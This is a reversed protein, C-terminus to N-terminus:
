PDQQYQLVKTFMPIASIAIKCIYSCRCNLDYFWTCKQLSQRAHQFKQLDHGGKALRHKIENKKACKSGKKGVRTNLKMKRQVHRGREVLRQAWNWEEKCMKVVKKLVFGNCIIVSWRDKNKVSCHIGTQKHSKESTIDAIGKSNDSFTKTASSWKSVTM